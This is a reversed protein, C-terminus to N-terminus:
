NESLSIFMEYLLIISSQLLFLTRASQGVAAFSNFFVLYVARSLISSVNSQILLKLSTTLARM